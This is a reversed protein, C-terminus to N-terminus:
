ARLAGISTRWASTTSCWTTDGCAADGQRGWTPWTRYPQWAADFDVTTSLVARNYGREAMEEVSKFAKVEDIRGAEKGPAEPTDHLLVVLLKEPRSMMIYNSMPETQTGYHQLDGVAWAQGRELSRYRPHRLVYAYKASPGTLEGPVRCQVHCPRVGKLFFSERVPSDEALLQEMLHNFPGLMRRLCAGVVVILENEKFTQDHKFRENAEEELQYLIHVALTAFLPSHWVIANVRWLDEDDSEAPHGERENVRHGHVNWVQKIDQLTWFFSPSARYWIHQVPTRRGLKPTAKLDGCLKPFLKALYSALPEGFRKTRTLEHVRLEAINPTGHVARLLHDIALSPGSDAAALINAQVLGNEGAASISLYNNRTVKQANDGFACLTPTQMALGLFTETPIRQVEDMLIAYAEQHKLLKAAPSSPTALGAFLKLAVDTTTLLVSVKM